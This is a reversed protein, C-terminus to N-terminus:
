FKHESATHGCYPNACVGPNGGSQYGGCKCLWNECPGWGEAHEEEKIKLLLAEAEINLKKVTDKIELFRAKALNINEM